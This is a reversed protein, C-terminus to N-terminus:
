KIFIMEMLEQAIEKSEVRMLNDEEKEGSLLNMSGYWVIENDIIAFHEHMTEMLQVNTGADILQEILSKTKDIMNKPYNNNFQLNNSALIM